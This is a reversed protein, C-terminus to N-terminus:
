SMSFLFLLIPCIESLNRHKVYNCDLPRTTAISVKTDKRPCYKFRTSCTIEKKPPVCKATYIDLSILCPSNFEPLSCGTLIQITYTMHRTRRPRKQSIFICLFHRETIKIHQYLGM